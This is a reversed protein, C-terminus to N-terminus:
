LIEFHGHMGPEGGIMKPYTLAAGVRRFRKLTEDVPVLLLAWEIDGGALTLIDVCSPKTSNAM